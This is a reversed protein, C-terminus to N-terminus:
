LLVFSVKELQGLTRLDIHLNGLDQATYIAAYGGVQIEIRGAEVLKPPNEAFIMHQIAAILRIGIIPQRIFDFEAHHPFVEGALSVGGGFFIEPFIGDGGISPNVAVVALRLGSRPLQPAPRRGAV